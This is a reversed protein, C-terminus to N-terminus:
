RGARQLEWARTVGDEAVKFNLSRFGLEHLKAMVAETLKDLYYRDTFSVPGSMDEVAYGALRIKDGGVTEIIVFVHDDIWAEVEVSNEKSVLSSVEDILKPTARDVSFFAGKFSAADYDLFELIWVRAM